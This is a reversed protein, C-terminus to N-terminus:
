EAGGNQQASQAAKLEDKAAKYELFARVVTKKDLEYSQELKFRIQARLSRSLGKFSDNYRAQTARGKDTKEYRAQAARRKASTKYHTVGRARAPRGKDSPERAEAARANDSNDNLAWWLRRRREATAEPSIAKIMQEVDPFPFGDM